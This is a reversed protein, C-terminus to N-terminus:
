LVASALLDVQGPDPNCPFIILEDCGADAFAKVYGAATGEDTAASDAIMQAMDGLFAYYDKLYGNAHEKADEGLSFYALAMGRPKGERGAESWAAELKQKGEAFMDPTGGGMIWGAGHEAARRYAADVSGGIILQPPDATMDPGISIESSGDWISGMEALM